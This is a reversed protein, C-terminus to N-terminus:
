PLKGCIDEIFRKSVSEMANSMARALAHPNNKDLSKVERYTKTFLRTENGAVPDSRTLSLRLSLVAEWDGPEDNEYFDIITGGIRHTVNKANPVLVVTDSIGTRDIDRALLSTLMDSPATIWQHYAYRARQHQNPAYIIHNTNYPASAHLQKVHIVVPNDAANERCRATQPQDYALTYYHVPKPQTQFIGCGCAILFVASCALGTIITIMRKQM